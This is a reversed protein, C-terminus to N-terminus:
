ENYRGLAHEKCVSIEHFFSHESNYQSYQTNCAKDYSSIIKDLSVGPRIMTHFRNQYKLM